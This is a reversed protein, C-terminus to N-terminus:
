KMLIMKKVQSHRQANLKYYYHGSPLGAANFICAHSGASKYENVLEAIENGLIDYVTLKVPGGTTVTYQIRTSPNFPNPYNQSLISSTVPLQHKETGVTNTDGFLVGNIVCGMIYKAYFESKESTREMVQGFEESWWEYAGNIGSRNVNLEVIELSVNFLIASFSGLFTIRLFSNVSYQKFLTDELKFNKKYYPAELDWGLKTLYYVGKEDCRVFCKQTTDTINVIKHYVNTGINVNTDVDRWHERTITPGDEILYMWSNGLKLPAFNQANAISCLIVFLFLLISKM